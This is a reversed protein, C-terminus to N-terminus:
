QCLLNLKLDRNIDTGIEVEKWGRDSLKHIRHNIRRDSYMKASKNVSFVKNQCHVIASPYDEHLNQGDWSVGCCSIDVNSILNQFGQKYTHEEKHEFGLSPRILQIIKKGKIWTHPENIVHIDSYMEQLDKGNLSEMFTYGNKELVSQLFLLSKSGYLIDIDKIPDDCISDRIAGGFIRILNHQLSFLQGSEFELYNDLKTKIKQEIKM